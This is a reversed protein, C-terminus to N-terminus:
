TSGELNKLIEVFEALVMATAGWIKNDEFFYFPVDVEKGHLTWMERQVTQPDTLLNLPIELVEAVEYPSPKFHPQEKMQAVVPYICYNTPPIYLPTLLGLVQIASPQIGLEEKTERLATQEFSEGKEQGGGPFSIQAQHLELLDTRRTLVVFVHPGKEKEKRYLLILVGARKCSDKVDTYVKNGPRPEPVMNLQASLGPLPSNLREKLMSFFQNSETGRDMTKKNVPNGASPCSSIRM